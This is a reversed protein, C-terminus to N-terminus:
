RSRKRRFLINGLIGWFYRWDTRFPHKRYAEIYRRESDQVEEITQPTVREYYFPPLLGPKVSTHLAQMEPTYLSLYQRSLPRVGVLKIQRKLLNIAMPFEDGWTGRLHRGLQNVRFDDAFKGEEGLGNVEYMYPQLYESYPYMTRFKYVGIKKGQYGVRPLKVLVGNTPDDDWIPARQKQGMVFFEGAYFREYIVDFGARCLRGLIEVRPFSQNKGKTVAMYFWRTIKLRAMVRHWFFHLSCLIRGLPGPHTNMIQALQYGSTRSRCVMIGEDPLAENVRNLLTNLHRVRSLDGKLAILKPHRDKGDMSTPDEADVFVTDPSFIDKHAQLWECMEDLTEGQADRLIYRLSPFTEIAKLFVARHTEVREAYDTLPAPEEPRLSVWPHKKRLRANM